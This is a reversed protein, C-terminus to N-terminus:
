KLRHAELMEEDLEIGLGPRDPVAIYGDELKEVPRVLQERWDVEGFAYELTLFNPISAALHVGAM